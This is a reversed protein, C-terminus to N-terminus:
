ILGMMSYAGNINVECYVMDTKQKLFSCFRDVQAIIGRQHNIYGIGQTLSVLHFKGDVCLYRIVM